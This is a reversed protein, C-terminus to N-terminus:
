SLRIGDSTETYGLNLNRFNEILKAEKVMMWSVQLIKRSLADAVVDAKELHFNLCFDCDKHFEIWMKQRM